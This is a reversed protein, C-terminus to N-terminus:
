DGGGPRKLQCEYPNAPIRFPRRLVVRNGRGLAVAIQGPECEMILASIGSRAARDRIDVIQVLKNM